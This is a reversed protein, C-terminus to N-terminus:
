VLGVFSSIRKIIDLFILTPLFGIKFYGWHLHSNGIVLALWEISKTFTM